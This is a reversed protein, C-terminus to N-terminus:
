QITITLTNLADKKHFLIPLFDNRLLFNLGVEIQLLQDGTELHPVCMYPSGHHAESSSEIYETTNSDQQESVLMLLGFDDIEQSAM